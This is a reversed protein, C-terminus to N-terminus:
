LWVIVEWFISREEPVGQLVYHSLLAGVFALLEYRCSFIRSVFGSGVEIHRMRVCCM